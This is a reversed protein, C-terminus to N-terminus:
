PAALYPDLVLAHHTMTCHLPSRKAENNVCVWEKWLESGVGMGWQCPRGDLVRYYLGWMCGERGM